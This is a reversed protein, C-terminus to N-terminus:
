WVHWWIVRLESSRVVGGVFTFKDLWFNIDLLEDDDIISSLRNFNSAWAHIIRGDDYGGNCAVGVDDWFIINGGGFSDVKAFVESSDDVGFFVINLKKM